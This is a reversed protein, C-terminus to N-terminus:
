ASGLFGAAAPCEHTQPKRFDKTEGNLIKKVEELVKWQNKLGGVRFAADGNEIEQQVIEPIKEKDEAAVVLQGDSYDKLSKMYGFVYLKV